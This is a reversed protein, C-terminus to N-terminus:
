ADTPDEQEGGPVPFTTRPERGMWPAVTMVADLPVRYDGAVDELPEGHAIARLAALTFVTEDAPQVAPVPAAPTAHDSSVIPSRYTAPDIGHLRMVDYVGPPSNEM